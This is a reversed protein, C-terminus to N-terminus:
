KDDKRAWDMLYKITEASCTDYDIFYALGTDFVAAQLVFKAAKEVTTFNISGHPALLNAKLGEFVGRGILNPLRVICHRSFSSVLKEAALKAKLYPTEESAQTSVFVIKDIYSQGSILYNSLKEVEKMQTAMSKDIFNWTHYIAINETIRDFDPLKKIAEGLQGRGNILTIM